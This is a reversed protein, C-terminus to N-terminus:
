GRWGATSRRVVLEPQPIEVHEVRGELQAITEIAIARGLQQFDWRVSTLPVTLQVSLELDNYGVVGLEPGITIGREMAAGYVGLALMDHGTVIASPREADLITAAARRGSAVEFTTSVVSSPDVVGGLRRYEELFGTAREHTTSAHGPGTIVAADRYGRDILHRAVLRGGEVDDPHYRHREAGYRVIPICPVGDAGVLEDIGLRSDAYLIADVGWQRMHRVRTARMGEDDFTNAVATVYGLEAAAADLGEYISGMIFESTHPVLVGLTRSRGTRLSAAARSPTYGLDKAEQQVREATAASVTARVQPDQSLARSVTAPHVGLRQALKALNM